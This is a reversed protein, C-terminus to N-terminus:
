IFSGIEEENCKVVLEMTKLAKLNSSGRVTNCLFDTEKPLAEVAKGKTEDQRGGQAFDRVRLETAPPQQHSRESHCDQKLLQASM